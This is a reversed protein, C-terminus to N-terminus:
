QEFMQQYFEAVEEPRQYEVGDIGGGLRDANVVYRELGDHSNQPRRFYGPDPDSRLPQLEKIRTSSYSHARKVDFGIQRDGRSIIVDMGDLDQATTPEVVSYEDSLELLLARNTAVEPWVGELVEGYYGEDMVPLKLQAAFLKGTAYIDHHFRKAVSPPAYTLANSVYGTFESLKALDASRERNSAEFEKMLENRKNSQGAQPMHMVAMSMYIATAETGPMDQVSHRSLFEKLVGCGEAAAQAAGPQGKAAARKAGETMAVRTYKKYGARIKAEPTNATEPSRARNGPAAQPREHNAPM